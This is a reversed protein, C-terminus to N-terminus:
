FFSGADLIRTDSRVTFYSQLTGSFGRTSIAMHMAPHAPDAPVIQMGLGAPFTPEVLYKVGVNINNTYFSHSNIATDVEDFDALPETASTFAIAIQGKSTLGRIRFEVKVLDVGKFGILAPKLLTALEGCKHKDKAAEFRDIMTIVTEHKRSALNVQASPVQLGKVDQPAVVVTTPTSSDEAM